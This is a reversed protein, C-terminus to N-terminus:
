RRGRDARQIRGRDFSAHGSFIRDVAGYGIALMMMTWLLMVLAKSHPLRFMRHHEAMLEAGDQFYVWWTARLFVAAFVVSYVIDFATFSDQSDTISLGRGSLGVAAGVAGVLMLGGLYFVFAKLMGDAEKLVSADGAAYGSARARLFAANALLAAICALWFLTDLMRTSTSRSPTDDHALFYWAYV